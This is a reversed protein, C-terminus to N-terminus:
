ANRKKMSDIKNIILRLADAKQKIRFKTHSNSKEFTDDLREIKQLCTERLLELEESTFNMM